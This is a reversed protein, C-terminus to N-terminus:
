QKDNLPIQEEIKSDDEVASRKLRHLAAKLCFRSHAVWRQARSTVLTYDRASLWAAAQFELAAITQPSLQTRFGGSTGSQIHNRHLLTDRAFRNAGDGATEKTTKFAEAISRQQQEISFRAALEGAQQPTLECGLFEAIRFAEAKLDAIMTEYRAVYVGAVRTWERNESLLSSLGGHVFAFEPIGYKRSISAVVDRVDRYVYLIKADGRKALEVAEPLFRHCKILHPGSSCGERLEALTRAAGEPTTLRVPRDGLIAAALQSQLTSGGRRMGVCFVFNYHM